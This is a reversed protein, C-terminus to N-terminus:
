SRPKREAALLSRSKGKFVAPIWDPAAGRFPILWRAIFFTQPIDWMWAPKKVIWPVVYPDAFGYGRLIRNLAVETYPQVHTPDDYFEKLAYRWNPTVLIFWGGPRLVRLTERLMNAPSHLHEILAIATVVDVSEGPLPFADHEFNVGDSIDIGQAELGHRNCVDVFARDASGLDLLRVAPVLGQGGRHRILTDFTEFVRQKLRLQTEPLYKKSTLFEDRYRRIHDTNDRRTESV